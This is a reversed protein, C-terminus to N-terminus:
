ELLQINNLFLRAPCISRSEPIHILQPGHARWKCPKCVEVALCARLKAPRWASSIAIRIRYLLRGAPRRLPRASIVGYLDHM